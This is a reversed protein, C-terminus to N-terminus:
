PGNYVPHRMDRLEVPTESRERVMDRFILLVHFGLGDFQAYVFDNTEGDFVVAVPGSCLRRDHLGQLVVLVQGLGHGFAKVNQELFEVM